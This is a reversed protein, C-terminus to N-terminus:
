QRTYPAARFLRFLFRTITAQSGEANGVSMGRDLSIGSPHFRSAYGNGSMGERRGVAYNSM